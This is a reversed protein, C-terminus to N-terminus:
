IETGCPTEPEPRNDVPLQLPLLTAVVVLVVAIAVVVLSFVATYFLGFLVMFIGGSIISEWATGVVIPVIM